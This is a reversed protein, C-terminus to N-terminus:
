GLSAKADRCADIVRRIRQDFLAELAVRQAEDIPVVTAVEQELAKLQEVFPLVLPGPMDAAIFRMSQWAREIAPSSRAM